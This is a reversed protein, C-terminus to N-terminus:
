RLFCLLKFNTNLFHIFINMTDSIYVQLYRSIIEFNFSTKALVGAAKAKIQWCKRGNLLMRLM